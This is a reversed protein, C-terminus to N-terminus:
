ARLDHFSCLRVGSRQVAARIEDACLVRLETEREKAYVSDLGEAYGVHCGLETWGAPLGEIMEILHLASIGDPYPEGEGTQGYFNGAYAVRPSCSRLPVRLRDAAALFVWRAPESLHMHQHSDLHTPARGLLRQFVTLQRELEAAVANADDADVVEYVPEWEGDGFRWEAADFHLGVSLQPYHRAYAASQEAADYRVMLSASTLIGREHAEIIGRNIGITLGFDDANVILRRENTADTSM